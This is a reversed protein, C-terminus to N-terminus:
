DKKVNVTRNLVIKGNSICLVYNGEYVTQLDMLSITSGQKIETKQIGKGPEIPMRTECSLDTNAVSLKFILSADASAGLAWANFVGGICCLFALGCKVYNM